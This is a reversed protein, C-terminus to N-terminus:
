QLYFTVDILVIQIYNVEMKDFKFDAWLALSTFYNSLRLGMVNLVSMALQSM